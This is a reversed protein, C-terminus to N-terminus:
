VRELIIPKFPVAEFSFFSHLSTNGRRV